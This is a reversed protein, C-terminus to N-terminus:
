QKYEEPCEIEKGYKWCKIKEGDKYLFEYSLGGHWFWSRYLGDEKGDKWHGESELQGDDYWSTWLGVQKDDKWNGERELQGNRHWVRFLGDRKNEKFTSEVKLYRGKHWMRCLGDRKGNKYNFEWYMRDGDGCYVVGTVPKNTVKLFVIPIEAAKLTKGSVLYGYPAAGRSNLNTADVNYRNKANAQKVKTDTSADGTADGGCGIISWVLLFVFVYKM